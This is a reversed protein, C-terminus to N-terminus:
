RLRMWSASPQPLPTVDVSYGRARAEALRAPVSSYTWNTASANHLATQVRFYGCFQTYGGLVAPDEADSILRGDPLTNTVFTDGRKQSWAGGADRRLFHYDRNPWLALAIYHHQGAAAAAAPEGDAAAAAGSAHHQAGSCGAAAATGAATGAAPAAAAAAAAPALRTGSGRPARQGAAYVEQRTVPQAGDLVVKHVVDACTSMDVARTSSSAFGPVCYGRTDRVDLAYCYCNAHLAAPCAAEEWYHVTSSASSSHNAGPQWRVAYGCPM